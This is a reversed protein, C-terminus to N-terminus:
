IKNNKDIEHRIEDLEWQQMDNLKSIRLSKLSKEDLNISSKIDSLSNQWNETGDLENM